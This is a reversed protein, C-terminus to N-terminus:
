GRIGKLYSSLERHGNHDAWDEPLKGIKTDKISAMAGHHILWDVMEKHGELAAYHLPTGAFDLGAPILNVQAGHSVLVDASNIRGWAAAYVLANGLIHERDCRAAEPIPTPFFPWAVEGAAPTLAGNKDFCTAIYDLRGLAAAVRLNTIPAGRELLLAVSAEHNWYLAEELPSWRGNGEIKAGLDLLLNIARVNNIGSAAILPDDLEAHHNALLSILRELKEVPPMTLVLCQLLTPHSIQSRRKALEPDAKLLSALGDVDGNALAIQAPNFPEDMRLKESEM